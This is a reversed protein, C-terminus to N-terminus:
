ETPSLRRIGPRPTHLVDSTLAEADILTVLGLQALRSAVQLQHDDVHENRRQLRPVVIPSVGLELLRLITGVGAHCIVVDAATAYGDFDAASMSTYATGPLEMGDTVGLQWTVRDAPELSAVVGRVLADFRYPRITGLSAFFTRPQAPDKPSEPQYEELLSDVVTWRRSGYGPHQTFTRAAPLRALIRGSLSPGEFRSVSEIYFLPLHHLLAPPYAALALGAGTTLVAEFHRSRMARFVEPMARALGRFDRPAMYPVFEHRRGLLLSKSQENEFTLFTSDPGLGL